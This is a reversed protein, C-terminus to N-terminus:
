RFSRSTRVGISAPCIASRIRVLTPVHGMSALPQHKERKTSDANRLSNPTPCVTSLPSAKFLAKAEEISLDVRGPMNLHQKKAEAAAEEKARRVEEEVRKAEEEAEIALQAAAEKQWDEEESEDSDNRDEEEGGVKARKIIAVEDIPMADEAKRKVLGQIEGKIREVESVQEQEARQAAEEAEDVAAQKLKEQGITEEKELLEVADEIDVPVTWLSEKTVRHSYFINGETTKVRLWDTGPIPTKSLPKEKKKKASQVAPIVPFAPLPRVYTSEQTQANHYYVQGGPGAFVTIPMHRIAQQMGTHETWGLPLPPPGLPAFSASMTPPILSTIILKQHSYAVHGLKSSNSACWGRSNFELNSETWLPAAQRHLTASRYTDGGHEM